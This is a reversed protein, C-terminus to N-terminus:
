QRDGRQKRHEMLLLKLRADIPSSLARSLSGRDTITLM